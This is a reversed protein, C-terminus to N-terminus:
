KKNGFVVKGGVGLKRTPPGSPVSWPDQIEGRPSPVRDPDQGITIGSQPMSTNMSRPISFNRPAEPPIVPDKTAPPEPTNMEPNVGTRGMINRIHKCHEERSPCDCEWVGGEYTSVSYSRNAGKEDLSDGKVKWRGILRRSDSPESSKQPPTESPVGEQKQVEQKQVEQKQVEPEKPREFGLPPQKMGLLEAAAMAVDRDSVPEWDSRGSSIEIRLAEQLMDRFDPLGMVEAANEPAFRPNKLLIDEQDMMRRNWKSGANKSNTCGPNLCVECFMQKFQEPALLKRHEGDYCGEWLDPLKRTMTDTTRQILRVSTSEVRAAVSHCKKIPTGNLKDSGAHLVV